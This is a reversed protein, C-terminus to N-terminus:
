ETAEVYDKVRGLQGACDYYAGRLAVVYRAIHADRADTEPKLYATRGDPLVFAELPSLDPATPMEKCTLYEPPPPPPNVEIPEGCAALALSFCAIWLMRM